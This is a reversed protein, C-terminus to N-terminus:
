FNVAIRRLYFPSKDHKSRTKLLSLSFDSFGKGWISSEGSFPLNWAMIRWVSWTDFKKNCIFFKISNKAWVVRWLICPFCKMAMDISVMEKLVMTSAKWEKNRTKKQPRFFIIGKTLKTMYTPPRPAIRSIINSIMHSTQFRQTM